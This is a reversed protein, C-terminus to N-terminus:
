LGSFMVMGNSEDAEIQDVGDGFLYRHNVNGYEDFILDINQNAGYVYRETTAVAAGDGDADVTKAIRQNYVDYKYEATKTVDGLANRVVLGTLRDRIDWGYDTMDGTLKDTRKTRNGVLDYEYLYKNDKLLRNNIGTVYGNNTRNGNGDYTYSEDAQFDYDAGTLQNTNDYTYASSGDTGTVGTIKSGADYTQAYSSIINAGKSHTINTLRNIQDYINNTEAVLNTGTIDSYRKKNTVQSIANYAYDVRKNGQANVTLRNLADYERTNAIGFSGAIADTMSLVNGVNDYGYSMITTPVNPTDQNSNSQM